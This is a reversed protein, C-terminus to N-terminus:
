AIKKKTWSGSVCLAAQILICMWGALNSIQTRTCADTSHSAINMGESKHQPYRINTAKSSNAVHNEPPKGAENKNEMWWTRSSPKVAKMGRCFPASIRYNQIGLAQPVAHKMRIVFGNFSLCVAKNNHMRTRRTPCSQTINKADMSQSPREHHITQVRKTLHRENIKINVYAHRWHVDFVHRHM